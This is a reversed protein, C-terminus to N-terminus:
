FLEMMESAYKTDLYEKVIRVLGDQFVFLFHYTNEYVRGDRLDAHSTAEMAVRDGEGTTAVVTMRFRTDGVKAAGDEVMKMYGERTFTEWGQIWWSADPTMLGIAEDYQGAAVSDILRAATQKNDEIGL